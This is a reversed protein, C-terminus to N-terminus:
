LMYWKLPYLFHHFRYQTKAEKNGQSVLEFCMEENEGLNQVGGMTPGTSSKM